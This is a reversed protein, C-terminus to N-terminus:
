HRRFLYMIVEHFWLILVILWAVFLIAWGVKWPIGIEPDNLPTWIALLEIAQM